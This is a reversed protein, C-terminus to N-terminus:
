QGPRLCVRLLKDKLLLWPFVVVANFIRKIRRPEFIVRWLWELGTRAVWNPPLKAKGTFYDLSGGVVMVGGVNLKGLNHYVWKEQKPAGFAVFLLHPRFNDIDRLIVIHKEIDNEKDSYGDKNIYIDGSGAIKIDPYIKKILAVAATNVQRSAGLLYVKLKKSNALLLLSELMERGTIRTKIKAALKLGAGDPLAIDASNLAALLERDKQAAVIIEPNPTTIFFKRKKKLSTRVFNLVQVRTIGSVKVGLIKHSKLSKQKM